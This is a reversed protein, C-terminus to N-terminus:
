GSILKVIDNYTVVLMLGMLLFLGIMHVMGEKDRDFPKRRIGEISLFVIRSGDLAPLPFLNILGLNISLYATLLMLSQFGYRATEGIATVIGVPGSVDPQVTGRLMGAISVLLDRAFLVSQEVGLGIARFLNQRARTPTIGLLYSGYSDDYSPTVIVSFQEGDREIVCQLSRGAEGSNVAASIDNWEDIAIGDISVIVDGSQLGAQAAPSDANVGGITSSTSYTGILMFLIIFLIIACLFNMVPGAAVVCIRQWVKKNCFARPNDSEEDEGAMKCWGGIPLLRLTYQTEKGKWSLLKPGMGLSFDEVYIGCAKAMIFHGFEHSLILFCFVLVAAIITM